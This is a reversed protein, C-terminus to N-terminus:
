QHGNYRENYSALALIKATSEQMRGLSINCDSCLIGRVEGTDHNHDICFKKKHNITWEEGCSDCTQMSRLYFDKAQEATLQYNYMLRGIALTETNAEYRAKTGERNYAM